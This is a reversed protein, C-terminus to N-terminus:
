IRREAVLFNTVNFKRDEINRELVELAHINGARLSAVVATTKPDMDPPLTGRALDEAAKATDAYEEILANRWNRKLYQDCQILAQPHSTIVKVDERKVGPRVLLQHHVNVEVIDIRRCQHACLADLTEMVFGGNSNEFAVVGVDIDGSELYSLVTEACVLYVIKAGAYKGNSQAIFTEGAQESFSGRAGMVGIRM